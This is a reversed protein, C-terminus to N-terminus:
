VFYSLAQLEVREMEDLHRRVTDTARVNPSEYYYLDAARNSAQAAGGIVQGVKPPAEHVIWNRETKFFRGSPNALLEGWWAKWKTHKEYKEKLRLLATRGFVISAELLAEFEVRQQVTCDDAMRLFLRARSLAHRSPFEAM